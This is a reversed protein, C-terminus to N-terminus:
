DLTLDVIDISAKNRKRSSAEGGPLERKVRQGSSPPEGKVRTEEKVRAPSSELEALRARLRRIEEEADSPAPRPNDAPLSNSPSVRMSSASEEGDTLETVPNVPEVPAPSPSRPICGLTQLADLLDNKSRYHFNFIHPQGYPRSMPEYSFGSPTSSAKGEIHTVYNTIAKGKVLEEPVEGSLLSGPRIAETMRMRRQGDAYLDFAVGQAGHLHYGPKIIFRFGFQAGTSAEVLKETTRAAGQGIKGPDDYETLPEGGSTIVVEIDDLIAM